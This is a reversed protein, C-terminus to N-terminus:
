PSREWLREWDTHFQVSVVRWAVPEAPAADAPPPPRYFAFTWVVPCQEYKGLYRLLVLDQGVRRSGIQEAGRYRGYKTALQTTQAVLQKVDDEREALNSEVLLEGFAESTQGGSLGEFFLSVRDSLSTLVADRPPTPEQGSCVVAFSFVGLFVWWSGIQRVFM